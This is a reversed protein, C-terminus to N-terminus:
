YVNVLRTVDFSILTVLLACTLTKRNTPFVDVLQVNINTQVALQVCILTKPNTVETEAIMTATAFGVDRSAIGTKASLSNLFFLKFFIQKSQFFILSYKFRQGRLM